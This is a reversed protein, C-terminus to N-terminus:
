QEALIFSMEGINVVKYQIMLPAGNKLHLIVKDCLPTAKTFHNFYSLKFVGEYSYDDDEDTSLLIANDDTSSTEGYLTVNRKVESNNSSISIQKDMVSIKIEDIKFSNFDKCIKQFRVSPINIFFDFNLSPIELGEDEHDKTNISTRTVEKTTSNETSIYMINEKDKEIYIYIIDDKDVTKIVRFLDMINIGVITKKDCFYHEFEEGKLEIHVAVTESDDQKAITILGETDDGSDHPYFVINTEYIIYKICELLIRIIHNKGTRLELINKNSIKSKSKEIKPYQKSMLQGKFKPLRGM